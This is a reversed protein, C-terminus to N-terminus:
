AKTRFVAFYLDNTYLTTQKFEVKAKLINMNLNFVEFGITKNEATGEDHQIYITM